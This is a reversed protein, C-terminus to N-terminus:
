LSAPEFHSAFVPGVSDVVDRAVMARKHKNFADQTAMRTLACGNYAALVLLPYATDGGEITPNLTSWSAFCAVAGALVDGIGGCRRMGGQISCEVEHNGDTIYDVEGKEIITLNGLANALEKRGPKEVSPLVAKCLRSFENVNPTLIVNNYGKVISPDQEVTWLGDGDIVLLKNKSRCARILERAVEQIQPDRGLGPGILLVSLRSVWEMVQKVIVKCSTDDESTTRLVPIVILEPGYSKIPTGADRSCFVYGLDAGTKVATMASVYPAGTYELCGGVVGVKGLQGKHFKASLRPIMQKSQSMIVEHFM